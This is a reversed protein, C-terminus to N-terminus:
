GDACEMHNNEVLYEWSVYLVKRRRWYDYTLNKAIQHLWVKFCAATKLKDMNLWAKFFVQQTFDYADERNGLLGTLYGCIESQHNQFLLAFSEVDGAQARKVLDGTDIQSALM